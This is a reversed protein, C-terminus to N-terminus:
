VTVATHSLNHGKLLIIFYLQKNSLLVTHLYHIFKFLIFITYCHKVGKYSRKHTSRVPYGERVIEFLAQLELILLSRKRRGVYRKSHM